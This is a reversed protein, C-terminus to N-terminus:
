GGKIKKAFSVGFEYCRKLEAQDPVYKVALSEQALQMGGEATVEEIEKVAGGAWGCSGFVAALRAKPKFGKVLEMFAAMSPLMDNDHTSSGFAFGRADLMANVVETRDSVAVDFIRTLVGNDILGEAIKRAMAATSGWM